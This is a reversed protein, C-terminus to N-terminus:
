ENVVLPLDTNWIDFVIKWTGDPQRQRLSVWKGEDHIPKGTSKPTYSGTFTGRVIAYEETSIVDVVTDVFREDNQERFSMFSSRIAEKGILIPENQHMRIPEDVYLSLLADFDAAWYLEDFKETLKKNADFDAATDITKTCASLMLIVTMIVMLNKQM